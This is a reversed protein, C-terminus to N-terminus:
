VTCAARFGWGTGAHVMLCPMHALNLTLSVQDRLNVAHKKQRKNKRMVGALCKNSDLILVVVRHYRHSM